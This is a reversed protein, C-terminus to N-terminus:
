YALREIAEFRVDVVLRALGEAVLVEISFRSERLAVEVAAVFSPPLAPSADHLRVVSGQEDVIVTVASISPGESLESAPLRVVLQQANAVPVVGPQGSSRTDIRDTDAVVAKDPTHDSRAIGSASDIAAPARKSPQSAPRGHTTPLPMAVSTALSDGESAVGAGSEEIALILRATLSQADGGAAHPASSGQVLTLAAGHLLAVASTLALIRRRQGM